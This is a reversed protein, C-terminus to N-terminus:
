TVLMHLGRLVASELEGRRGAFLGRVGHQGRVEFDGGGGGAATNTHALAFELHSHPSSVSSKCM